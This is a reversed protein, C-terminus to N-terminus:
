STGGYLKTRDVDLPVEYQPSNLVNWKSGGLYTINSSTEDMYYSAQALTASVVLIVLLHWLDWFALYVM